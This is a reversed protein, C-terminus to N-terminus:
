TLITAPTGSPPTPTTSKKGGRSLIVVVAAVIGGIIAIGTVTASTRGPSTTSPPGGPPGPEGAKPPLASLVSTGVNGSAIPEHPRHLNRYLGGDDQLEIMRSEPAINQAMAPSLGLTATLVCPLVFSPVSIRM